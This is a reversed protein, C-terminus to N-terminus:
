TECEECHKSPVTSATKCWHSNEAENAFEVARKMQQHGEHMALETLRTWIDSGVGGMSTWRKRLDCVGSDGLGKCAGWGELM